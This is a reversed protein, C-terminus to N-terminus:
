EGEDSGSVEPAPKRGLKKAAKDYLPKLSSEFYWRADDYRKEWDEPEDDDYGDDYEDDYSAQEEERVALAATLTYSPDDDLMMQEHDYKFRTFRKLGDIFAELKRTDASSGHTVAMDYWRMVTDWPTLAFGRAPAPRKAVVKRTPRAERIVKKLQGVTLKM